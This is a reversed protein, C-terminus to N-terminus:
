SVCVFAPWHPADAIVAITESSAPASVFANAPRVTRYFQPSLITFSTMMAAPPTSILALSSSVGVALAM